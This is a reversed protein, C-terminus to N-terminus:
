LLLSSTHDIQSIDLDGAFVILVTLRGLEAPSVVANDRYAEDCSSTM